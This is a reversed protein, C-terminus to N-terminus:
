AAAFVENAASSRIRRRLQQPIIAAVARCDISDM